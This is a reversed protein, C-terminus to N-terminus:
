NTAVNVVMTCRKGQILSGLAGVDVGDINRAGIEMLSTASSEVAETGTKSVAKM